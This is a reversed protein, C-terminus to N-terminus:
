DVGSDRKSDTRPENLIPPRLQGYFGVDKLTKWYKEGVVEPGFSVRVDDRNQIDLHIYKGESFVYAMNPNTPSPVIMDITQWPLNNWKEATYVAEGTAQMTGDSLVNVLQMQNGGFLWAQPDDGPIAIAGNITGGTLAIWNTFQVECPGMIVESSGQLKSGDFQVILYKGQSFFFWQNDYHPRPFIADITKFGNQALAPWDNAFHDPHLIVKDNIAGPQWSIACYQNEFFFYSGTEDNININVIARSM